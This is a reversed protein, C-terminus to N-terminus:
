VRLFQKGAMQRVFGNFELSLLYVLATSADMNTKECLSDIHIPEEGLAEFLRTEYQNLQSLDVSEHASALRSSMSDGLDELIDDVSSVLKAAGAQILRNCGAAAKSQIPGPVAFVERNQELALRATILAGGKEFAEVVLTGVSLGSIIRNRRPFNPADPKAGLAYESLLAGQNIIDQALSTHRSPYVHDVGSGLVAITRGGAELAGRHAAVDIGYALGSVITYGARALGFAFDHAVRRGSETARRTGVIAIAREENETLRGRMWLFAPPDFIQTLISPFRSDWAAILTAEANEARVFQAEVAPQEDFARIAAATQPGIGSVASLSQTSAALASEASGFRAILSRIRGPGVGPVLALAILAHVEAVENTRASDFLSRNM